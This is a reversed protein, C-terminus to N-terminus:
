GMLFNSLEEPSNAIYKAGADELEKVSGYGFSVGIPFINNKVGGIIDHSRDGVMATRTLDISGLNKLVTAVVEAKDTLTGDLNSGVVLDFYCDLNFHELIQKAFITPKSTALAVTKGSKKLAELMKQIGDYVKNEFIGFPAFYERYIDVAKYSDEKSMGYYKEFSEALPPGIFKLLKNKHPPTIGFKKLAYAVSNTIGEAPDTLTGDLDFLITDFNM